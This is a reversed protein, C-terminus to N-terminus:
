ATLRLSKNLGHATTIVDRRTGRILLLWVNRHSDGVKGNKRGQGRESGRQWMRDKSSASRDQSRSSCIAIAARIALIDFFSAPTRSLHSGGMLMLM